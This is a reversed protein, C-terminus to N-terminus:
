LFVSSYLSIGTPATHQGGLTPTQNGEVVPENLFHVNKQNDFDDTSIVCVCVRAGTCVSLYMFFFIVIVFPVVSFCKLLM